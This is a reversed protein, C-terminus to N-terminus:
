IAERIYFPQIDKYSTKIGINFKELSEFNIYEPKLIFNNDVNVLNNKIKLEKNYHNIITIKDKFNNIIEIYEEIKFITPKIFYDIHFSDLKRAICTYVENRKIDIIPSIVSKSNYSEIILEIKEFGIINIDLLQAITKALVVGSRSSTYGGPGTIVGILKTEKVDKNNQKYLNDLVSILNETKINLNTISSLVEKNETLAINVLKETTDIGLILL